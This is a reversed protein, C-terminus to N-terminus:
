VQEHPTEDVETFAAGQQRLEALVPNYLLPTTPIHLGSLNLKGEALLCAAIALPLGVTKAMATHAADDGQVALYSKRKHLKQDLKYYCVHAMYIMDQEHPLMQWKRLLLNELVQAATAKKLQCTENSLLGTWRIKEMVESDVNQGIAKALREDLSGSGQRVFMETFSRFTFEKDFEFVFQNDTLGLHVLAGWAKCFDKRRLTFRIVTRANHLKYEQVYKLSDRNYYADFVGHGPMVLEDIETFLRHYPIRKMKDNRLYIGGDRGATVVYMPNWTFKYEWPNNQAHPSMLGGTYSMFQTIEGGRQRIEDLMQMASMHDIGPDLGMEKLFLLGKENIEREIKRFDDSVYSASMFHKGMELCVTAALIHFQAPLLSIVIDARSIENRLQDANHVDLLTKSFQETEEPLADLNHQLNDAVRLHWFNERAKERIFAVLYHATRGAGLLTIRIM